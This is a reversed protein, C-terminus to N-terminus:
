KMAGIEKLYKEAGPHFPLPIGKIATEVTMEKASVHIGYYDAKHDFLNKLFKYVIETSVGSHTFVATTFGLISVDQDVGKYSKAKVVTRYYYPHETTIKTLLKEDVPVIRVNHQLSLETYSAIPYGGALFGGDLSGDQIGEVTEKYVYYYPKFNEKMVGNQELLFLATNAVTSGPGGVGIRKGKADAYSKIPSNAPVVFYLDTPLVFVVARLTPFPKAAYEGQGKLARWSDVTGFVGFADKKQSERMMMRRIIDMTGTCAEHVLKVEPLYRNTVSVIGAGLIYAGGGAPPTYFPILESAAQVSIFSVALTLFIMGTFFCCLRVWKMKEEEKKFENTLFFGDKATM